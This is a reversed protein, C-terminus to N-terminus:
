IKKQSNLTIHSNIKNDNLTKNEINEADSDYFISDDVSSLIKNKVNYTVNKSLPYIWKGM